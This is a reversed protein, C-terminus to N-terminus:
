YAKLFYSTGFVLAFMKFNSDFTLISQSINKTHLLPRADWKLAHHPLLFQIKKGDGVEIEDSCKRACSLVVVVMGFTGQMYMLQADFLVLNM